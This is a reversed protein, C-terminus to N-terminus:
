EQKNEKLRLQRLLTEHRKSENHSKWKEVSTRIINCINCKIGSGNEFIRDTATEIKEFIDENFIIREDHMTIVIYVGSARMNSSRSEM